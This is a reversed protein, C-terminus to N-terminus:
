RKLFNGLMRVVDDMVNGDRNQDLLMTVLNFAQPQQQQMQGTAQGLLDLLGGTGAGQQRTTKGLAGMVIPALMELLGGIQNPNIGSAQGIGQQVVVQQDGLVHRLIGAGPGQQANGLFDMLNDLVSGDHDRELANALSKAGQPDAANRQLGQLLAPLAMGIASQVQTDSAGLRGAMQQITNENLAAGLLDMLGAM